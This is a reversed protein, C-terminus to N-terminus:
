LSPPFCQSQSYHELSSDAKVKKRQRKVKRGYNDKSSWNPHREAHKQREEAALLYYKQQQESTMSKWMHGLISNAEVSHKPKLTATVHERNERMFIMFANPPRRIYPGPETPKVHNTPPSTKPCVSKGNMAGLYSHAASNVSDMIPWFNNQREALRCGCDPRYGVDLPICNQYCGPELTVVPLSCGGQPVVDGRAGFGGGTVHPPHSVQPGVSALGGAHGPQDGGCAVKTDGVPSVDGFMEQMTSLVIDWELEMDFCNPEM